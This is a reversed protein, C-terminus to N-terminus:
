DTTFVAVEARRFNSLQDFGSPEFQNGASDMVHVIWGLGELARAKDVAVTLSIRVTM